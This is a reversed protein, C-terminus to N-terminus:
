AKQTVKIPNKGDEQTVKIPPSTGDEQTVKITKEGDLRESKGKTRFLSMFSINNKVGEISKETTVKKDKETKVEDPNYTILRSSNLLVGATSTNHLIVAIFPNIMGFAAAVLGGANIVLAMGYNQRIVKITKKSIQLMEDLKRFDDSSLAIDASEIAVDSCGTGLAIGVDAIALAPADNIGDGVMIVKLGQAQLERIIRYKEEPMLEAHWEDIGAAKAVQKASSALDGTLMITKQIDRQRIQDLTELVYPRVTTRIGILGVVCQDHNAIYLMTEGELSYKRHQEEAEAPIQIAFKEMLKQNGVYLVSTDEMTAQMGSSDINQYSKPQIFEINNDKAHALIAGGLPHNSHVEASAAMAVINNADYKEDYSIVRNVHPIGNTLTGTKDFVMIDAQAASELFTGGRILIGRKASNGVSASVSTPTSLGVACPCAILLMTLARTPDLTLLFVGGSMAFSFPVFRKSFQEGVTQIPPRSEEAKHVREIIRGVVTDQGIKEVSIVLKGVSLISGAYVHDGAALEVPLEEGTVPAQNVRADGESVAGDVPIRQGAYVALKDGPKITSLRQRTEVVKGDDATSVLWVEENADIELLDKIAKQTKRLTVAEFREGINLLLLVSLATLGNGMALSALTASGVLTDSNIKRKTISRWLGGIYSSGTIVTVTGAVIFVPLHGAVLAPLFLRQAGLGLLTTSGLIIKHKYKELTTDDHAHEHGCSDDGCSAGHEHSHDHSHHDHNHDHGHDHSHHDHNHDHDDNMQYRPYDHKHEGHHGSKKQLKAIFKRGAKMEESFTGKVAKPSLEELSKGSEFHQTLVKGLAYTSAGGMTVMSTTGVVTGVGPVLKVLSAVRLFTYPLSGGLLSTIVTRSYNESFEQEYLKSFSHIMKFQLGSLAAFDALPIPILGITMSAVTYENLIIGAKQEKSIHLSSGLDNKNAPM